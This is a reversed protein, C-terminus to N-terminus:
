EVIVNHYSLYIKSSLAAIITSLYIALSAFVLFTSSYEKLLVYIGASLFLFICNFGFNTLLSNSNRKNSMYIEGITEASIASSILMLEGHSFLAYIDVKAKAIQLFLDLYFPLLTFLVTFIIWQIIKPSRAVFLSWGHLAVSSSDALDQSTTTQKQNSMDSM